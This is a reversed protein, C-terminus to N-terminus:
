TDDKENTRQEKIRGKKVKTSTLFFFKKKKKKSNWKIEGVLKNSIVKLVLREITGRSIVFHV